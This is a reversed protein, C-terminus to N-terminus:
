QGFIWLPKMRLRHAFVSSIALYIFIRCKSSHIVTDMRVSGWQMIYLVFHWFWLVQLTVFYHVFTVTVVGGVLLFSHIFNSNVRLIIYHICKRAV